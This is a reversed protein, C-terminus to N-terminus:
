PPHNRVNFKSSQNESRGVEVVWENKYVSRVELSFYLWGTVALDIGHCDSLGSVAFFLKGLAAICKIFGLNTSLDFFAIVSFNHRDIKFSSGKFYIGTFYDSAISKFGTMGISLDPHKTNTGAM